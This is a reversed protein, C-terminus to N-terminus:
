KLIQLGGKTLLLLAWLRASNWAARRRWNWWDFKDYRSLSGAIFIIATGVIGAVLVALPTYHNDIFCVTGSVKGGALSLIKKLAHSIRATANVRM